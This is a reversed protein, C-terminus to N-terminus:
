FAEMRWDGWAELHAVPDGMDTAVPLALMAALMAAGQGKRRAMASLVRIADTAYKEEAVDPPHLM